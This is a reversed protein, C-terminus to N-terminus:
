TFWKTLIRDVLPDIEKLDRLMPVAKMEKLWSVYPNWTGEYTSDAYSLVIDLARMTDVSPTSVFRGLLQKNVISPILTKDHKLAYYVACMLYKETEVDIPKEVASKVLPITYSRQSGFMLGALLKNTFPILGETEQAYEIAQALGEDFLDKSFSRHAMSTLRIMILTDCQIEIDDCMVHNVLAKASLNDLIISPHHDFVGMLFVLCKIVQLGLELARCVLPIYVDLKDMTCDFGIVKFAFIIFLQLVPDRVDNDLLHVQHVSEVLLDGEILEFVELPLTNGLQLICTVAGPVLNHDGKLMNELVKVCGADVVKKAYKEDPANTALEFLLDVTRTISKARKLKRVISM